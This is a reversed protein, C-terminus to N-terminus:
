LSIPTQFLQREMKPLENKLRGELTEEIQRRVNRQLYTDIAVRTKGAIHRALLQLQLRQHALFESGLLQDHLQERQSVATGAARLSLQLYDEPSRLLTGLKRILITRHQENASVLAGHIQGEEFRQRLSDYGTEAPQVEIVRGDLFLV